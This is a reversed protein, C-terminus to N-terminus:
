YQSGRKSLAAQLADNAAGPPGLYSGTDQVKGLAAKDAASLQNMVRRVDKIQAELQSQAWSGRRCSAAGLRCCRPCTEPGGCRHEARDRRRRRCWSAQGAGRCQRDGRCGPDVDPRPIRGRGLLASVRAFGAGRFASGVLEDVWGQVAGRRGEGAGEGRVAAVVDADAQGRLAQVKTLNDRASRLDEDAKSVQAGLDQYRKLPDTTGGPQSPRASVPTGGPAITLAACAVLTKILVRSRRNSHV